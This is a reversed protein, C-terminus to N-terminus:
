DDAQRSQKNKQPTDSSELAGSNSVADWYRKGTLINIVALKWERYENGSSLAKIGTGALLKYDSSATAM